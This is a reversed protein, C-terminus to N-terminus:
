HSKELRKITELDKIAKASFEVDDAGYIKKAIQKIKEEREKTSIDMSLLSNEASDIRTFYIRIQLLNQIFPSYKKLVHELDSDIRNLSFVAIIGLIISIVLSFGFGLFLRKGITMQKKM